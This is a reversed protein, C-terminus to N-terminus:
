GIKIVVGSFGYSKMQQGTDNELSIRPGGRYNKISKIRKPGEEKEGFRIQTPFIGLCKKSRKQSDSPSKPNEWVRWAETEGEKGYVIQVQLILYVPLLFEEVPIDGAQAVQIPGKLLIGPRARSHGIPMAGVPPTMDLM